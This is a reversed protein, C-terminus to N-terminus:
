RAGGGSIRRTRQSIGYDHIPGAAAVQSVVLDLPGRPLDARREKPVNYRMRRCTYSSTYFTLAYRPPGPEM